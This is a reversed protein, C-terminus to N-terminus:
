GIGYQKLKYQLTRLSIGLIESANKRHGKSRLLAKEIATREITDLDLPEEQGEAPTPAQRSMVESLPPIDLNGDRSLIVARELINHLERINGPWRYSEIRELGQGFLVPAKKGIRAAIRHVLYSALISVAGPRSRLPPLLIPFVSLRYYLDERFLKGRIRDKLDQNTAALIRANTHITTVGGVREFAREQLVRLLKAQVALPMEGIEDLFITGDQALEFKGQKTKVAGTFAGKEHGFLDSEILTEPIAACNIEVFPGTKGSLCHIVKAILSKGTGSEGLLLVTADTGAVQMIENRIGEMGAFIVEDPPLDDTLRDTWITKERNHAQRELVRDVVLLLEDPDKLPKELYEFAGEKMAQVANEVTAYATLLIFDIEQDRARVKRMLDIGSMDEMRLDTIVLHPSSKEILRIAEAGSMATEVDFGRQSLIRKLLVTISPEDDVVVIRTVQPTM